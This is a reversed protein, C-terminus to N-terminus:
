GYVRVLGGEESMLGHFGNFSEMCILLFVVCVCVYLESMAKFKTKTAHAIIPIWMTKNTCLFHKPTNHDQTYVTLSALIHTSQSSCQHMARCLM